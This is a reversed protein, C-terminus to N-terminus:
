HFRDLIHRVSIIPKFCALPYMRVNAQHTMETLRRMGLLKNQFPVKQKQISQKRQETKLLVVKACFRIYDYLTLKSYGFRIACDSGLRCSVCIKTHGKERTTLRIHNCIKIFESLKRFRRIKVRGILKISSYSDREQLIPNLANGDHMESFFEEFLVRRRM